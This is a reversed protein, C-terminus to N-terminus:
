ERRVGLKVGAAAPWAIKDGDVAIVDAFFGVARVAHQASFYQAIDAVAMQTM